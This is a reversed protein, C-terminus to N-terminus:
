IERVHMTLMTKSLGVFNGPISSAKGEVRDGASPETIASTVPAEQALVCCYHKHVLCWVHCTDLAVAGVLTASDLQV